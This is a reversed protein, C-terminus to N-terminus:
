NSTSRSEWIRETGLYLADSCRGVGIRTVATEGEPDLLREQIVQEIEAVVAIGEFNMGNSNARAKLIRTVVHEPCSVRIGFSSLIFQRSSILGDHTVALDYSGDSRKSIDELTGVFLIPNGLWVRQLEVSLVEDIGTGRSGALMDEWGQDADWKQALAQVETRMQSRWAAEIEEGKRDSMTSMYVVAFCFSLFVVFYIVVGRM